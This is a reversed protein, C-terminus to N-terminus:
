RPDEEIPGNIKLENQIYTHKMMFVHTCIQIYIFDVNERHIYGKM